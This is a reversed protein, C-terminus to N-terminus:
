LGFWVCQSTILMTQISVLELRLSFAQQLVHVLKSSASCVMWSRNGANSWCVQWALCHFQGTLSLNTRVWMIGKCRLVTALAEMVLLTNKEEFGIVIENGNKSFGGHVVFLWYCGICATDYHMTHFRLHFHRLLFSIVIKVMCHRCLLM